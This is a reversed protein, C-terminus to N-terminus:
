NGNRMETRYGFASMGVRVCIDALECLLSAYESSTNLWDSSEETKLDACKMEEM